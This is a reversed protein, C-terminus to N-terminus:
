FQWRVQGYLSRVYESRSVINGFEPHSDHLLNRGVLSIELTESPLWALRADLESYAPVVPAPLAAVRRWQLDFRTYRGLDFRSRASWVYDPDNRLTDNDVGVPDTSGRKLRLHETVANVGASVEWFAFPRYEAWAEVGYIDGEIKNEIQVPLGTGSRVKDWRHLFATISYSLQSVPQARFGLEAVNAVESEFNPGGVVFFPPTGPFRVDRDYRAPARVARSLSGWLLQTDDLKWGIRISPLVEAGTYDNSEVKIGFTGKVREALQVEDQIFLNGWELSRSDPVFITVFGPDIDDHGHRYGAGWLVNHKAGPIAYQFDLDVIDATPRYFLADDRKSHDAYAQLQMKSGSAMERSWRALLNAGEVSIETLEIPGIFGRSESDGKYADGQVTFGDAGSQWDARFGVQGRNWDDLQQADNARITHDIEAYKAYVRWAGSGAKGGYRLSGGREQDGAGGVLLLGGTDGAARTIVNIVGNVANAGWLAAGPGSIVEIRDVDQLLVDQQDWFVGSFLPTYATRGDILVLLKNGIANNFGRASIAYQASDARAVQLNPALRLAEPLTTVGSRRISESTIVYISAPADSLAESRKSVSTVQIDLLQDVSLNKLSRLTDDAAAAHVGSVCCVALAMFKTKLTESGTCRWVFRRDGDM